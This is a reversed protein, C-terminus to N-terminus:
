AKSCAGCFEEVEQEAEERARGYRQQVRGILEDRRGDIATLDDDTLRGWRQKVKGKVQLWNGKIEDWNM